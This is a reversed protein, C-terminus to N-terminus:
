APSSPAMPDSFDVVPIVTSYYIVKDNLHRVNTTIPFWSVECEECKRRSGVDNSGEKGCNWCNLGQNMNKAM